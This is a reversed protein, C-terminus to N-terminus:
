KKEYILIYGYKFIDFKHMDINFEEVSEDDHKYWKNNKNKCIAYYHGGTLGGHHCGISILNLNCKFSEYGECYTSMDLNEFPFRILNNSKITYGREDNKYRKLIIILYKPIISIKIHKYAKIYTNRKEDFYKSELIEKEFYKSLSDNLTNGYIPISITNFLEFRKSVIKNMNNEELSIIENVYQGFFLDAIYSYQNNLNEKWNMLSEVMIKDLENREVGEYEISAKYKLAEHLQDIIISLVEQSDQQEYGSFRSDHTQLTEHFTKPEIPTLSITMANILKAYEKTLLIEKINSKSKRLSCFRNKLDDIYEHTCLYETLLNVNYLCQIATNLYCTNGRNKLGVIGIEKNM